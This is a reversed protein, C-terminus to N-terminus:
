FAYQCIAGGINKCFSEKEKKSDFIILYDDKEEIIPKGSKILIKKIFAKKPFRMSIENNLSKAEKIPTNTYYNQNQLYFANPNVNSKNKTDDTQSTLDQTNIINPIKVLDDISLKDEVKPPIIVIKYSDGDSIKFVQPYTIKGQKLLYKASEIAEMKNKYKALRKLVDRIADEYGKNYGKNYADKYGKNYYFKEIETINNPLKDKTNAFLQSTTIIFGTLILIPLNKM